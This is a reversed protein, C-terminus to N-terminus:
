GQRDRESKSFMRHAASVLDWQSPPPEAARSEVTVARPLGARGDHLRRAARTLM